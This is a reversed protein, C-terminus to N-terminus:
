IHPHHVTQSNTKKIAITVEKQKTNSVNSLPEVYIYIISVLGYM